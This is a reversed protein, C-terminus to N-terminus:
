AETERDTMLVREDGQRHTFGISDLYEFVSFGVTRGYGLVDKCDGIALKDNKEIVKKVREKIQEMAEISIFRRNNLCILRKKNHLYDLLRQIENLTTKTKHFKWFTHASFPVFGSRKAYDLMLNILREREDSLRVSLNSIQFGENTKILTGENCLEALMRQFPAEDLFPALQKKIEEFTINLKFPDQTLMNEVVEPLQGKLAQYRTKAIFGEGEFYLLQGSKVGDKIQAELEVSSFGTSGAIDAETVLRNLNNTYLHEVVNKLDKKQLAKMYPIIKDAKAQRYRELPIELVEGGGIITQVNLPCIVFLDGLLAAVQKMLRFQALGEEGPELREKEMLVVMANTVFTGLYLKVRQRNRIPKLSDKLVKLEANLLYSPRVTGQKALVMGRKVEKLPIKHLNIGAREGAFAELVKKHHVEIFRVRTEKGSPMLCIIQDKKVSGSFITGTAVTGFGSFSKVQDIWLRFPVTVNKEAAREVELGINQLVDELGRRNIASFPLVPKGELFTNKIMDLLELEALELTEDDVLDAKSLVIFGNKVKLFNLIELHEQTQPMVGDDAAVVLIAMDVCSLGRIANKLFDTHGPIDVLAVQEGSPLKLAAVGSEISLGRRKEEQLRDTDFGTLCRVLATKGHDVHGAIGITIHKKM